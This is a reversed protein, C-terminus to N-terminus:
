KLSMYRDWFVCVHVLGNGSFFAPKLDSLEQTSSLRDTKEVQTQQDLCLDQRETTTDTKYGKLVVAATIRDSNFIM